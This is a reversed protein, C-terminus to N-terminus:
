DPVSHRRFGADVDPVGKLEKKMEAAIRRCLEISFGISKKNEDYSFPIAAEGCGIAFVKADCVKKLTGCLEQATAPVALAALGTAAALMLRIFIM